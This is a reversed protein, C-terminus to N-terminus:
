TLSQRRLVIYAALASAVSGSLVGLRIDAQLHPGSFALEGIFLSMTFGIGCLHALGWLQGWGVGQPMPCLRTKVALWVTGFIGILKGAFLGLAIGLVVPEGFNAVSMDMLPVGANAFAFIPLILFAVYPHLLHELWELPKREPNKPCSLPISFATLVGAITPHIGSKYMAIWLVCGIVLFPMVSSCKFKNLLFLVVVLVAAAALYLLSIHSTYFLAIIIVAGLDDIIAIATLLIKLSLPARSGLLALVGLSFAIDTASPIAWGSQTTPIDRNVFWYILAPVAMGGIAAVVPLLARDRSSLEGILIERKIELGVLFFFIAMLGDNIILKVTYAGFFHQYNPGLPSNAIILAVAAAAM